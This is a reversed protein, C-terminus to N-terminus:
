DFEKILYVKENMKLIAGNELDIKSILFEDFDIIEINYSFICQNNEGDYKFRKERFIGIKPYEPIQNIIERLFRDNLDNIYDTIDRINKPIEEVQTLKIYRNEENINKTESQIKGLEKLEKIAFDLCEKDTESLYYDRPAFCDKKIKLKKNVKMVLFNRYGGIYFMREFDRFSYIYNEDKFTIYRGYKRLHEGNALDLINYLEEQTFEGQRLVYFISNWFSILDSGKDLIEEIKKLDFDKMIKRM